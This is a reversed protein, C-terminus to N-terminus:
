LDIGDPPHEVPRSKEAPPTNGREPPPESAAPPTRELLSSPFPAPPPAGEPSTAPPVIELQPGARLQIFPGGRREIWGRVRVHRGELKDLAFGEASLKKLTRTTLGITFDRRWDKSFNIYIRNRVRAIRHVRGEVIQFTSRYRMLQRADNAQRMRYAAHRWLGKREERAITELAVLVRACAPALRAVDARAAGRRIMEAQLWLYSKGSSIFVQAPHRGYRDKRNSGPVIIANRQRLLRKLESLAEQEPPWIGTPAPSDTPAPPLIGTLVVHSGDDLLLTSTDIVGVVDRKVSSAQPQCPLYGEAASVPPTVAISLLTLLGCLMRARVRRRLNPEPRRTSRM